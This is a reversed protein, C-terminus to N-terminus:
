CDGVHPRGRPPSTPQFVYYCCHLLLFVPRGRPPSTPQFTNLFHRIGFQHLTTGASPVHTSIYLPRLVRLPSLLTTGASPVHTSIGPFYPSFPGDNTTGASPVHTSIRIAGDTFIQTLPRGRPPSTPQFLIGSKVITVYFETTGASPVHTSIQRVSFTDSPINPRGRPPSTPQFLFHNVFLSHHPLDDGRLPRPNFDPNYSNVSCKHSTTGASPVHTSIGCAVATHQFSNTTGASPVHTSIWSCWCFHDSISPRGRPPSTPQFEIYRTTQMAPLGPRGRPPSTPQFIYNVLLSFHSAQDDGRLPRPNFYVVRCIGDQQVSPRGRPPSTPQFISALQYQTHTYRDDGRLPRPNFNVVRFLNM